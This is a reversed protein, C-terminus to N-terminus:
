VCKLGFSKGRRISKELDTSPKGTYRYRKPSNGGADDERPHRGHGDLVTVEERPRQEGAYRVEQCDTCPSM